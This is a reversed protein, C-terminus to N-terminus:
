RRFLKLADEPTIHKEAAPISGFYKKVAEDYNSSYINDSIISKFEENLEILPLKKIIYFGDNEIEIVKSIENVELNKLTNIFIEEHDGETYIYGLPYDLLLDDKSKDMMLTDFRSPDKVLTNYVVELQNKATKDSAPMFIYKACFYDSNYKQLIDEETPTIEATVKNNLAESYMCEEVYLVFSAKLSANKLATSKALIEDMQKFYRDSIEKTYNVGSAKAVTSNLYLDELSSFAAGSLFSYEEDTYKYGASNMAMVFEYVAYPVKAGNVTMIDPNDCIIVQETPAVYTVNYGLTESIFRVPVFTRGGTEIPAVDLTVEKEDVLAVNKNLRLKIEKEETIIGVAEEAEDWTVNCGFNEAIIRVPVMTRDNETFLPAEVQSSTVTGDELVNVSTDWLTLELTKANASVAFLLTFICMLLIIKKINM